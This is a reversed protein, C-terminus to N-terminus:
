ISGLKTCRSTDSVNEPRAQVRESGCHFFIGNSGPELKVTVATGSHLGLGEFTVESAVTQRLFEIAVKSGRWKKKSPGSGPSLTPCNRNPLWRACRKVPPSRLFDLINAPNWSTVSSAPGDRWYSMM